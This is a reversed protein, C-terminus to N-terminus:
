AQWYRYITYGGSLWLDPKSSNPYITRQKFDSCWGFGAVYVQIHGHITSSNAGWIIVDGNKPNYGDGIVENVLNFDNNTMIVGYDKASNPRPKVVGGAAELAIRVYKACLGLSSPQVNKKAFDTFKKIDM